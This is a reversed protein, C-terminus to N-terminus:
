KFFYVVVDAMYAMLFGVFLFLDLCIRVVFKGLELIIKFVYQPYNEANALYYELAPKILTLVMPQKFVVSLIYDVFFFFVILCIRKILLNLTNIEVVNLLITVCIYDFVLYSMVKLIDISVGIMKEIVSTIM